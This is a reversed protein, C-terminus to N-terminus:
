GLHKEVRERGLRAAIDAPLDDVVARLRVERTFTTGDPWTGEVRVLESTDADFWYTDTRGPRVLDTFHAGVVARGSLTGESVTVVPETWGGKRAPVRGAPREALGALLRISAARVGAPATESLAVEGVAKVVGEDASATGLFRARLNQELPGAATPLTTPDFEAAADYIMWSRDLGETDKRWTWGDAAVYAERTIRAGGTQQEVAVVKRYQGPALAQPSTRGEAQEALEELSGAAAPQVIVPLMGRGPLRSPLDGLLGGAGLLVTLGAAVLLVARRRHQQRPAVPATDLIRDVIASRRRPDLERDVTEPTPRTARLDLEIQTNM